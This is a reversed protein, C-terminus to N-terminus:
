VPGGTRVDASLSRKEPAKTSPKPVKPLRLRLQLWLKAKTTAKAKSNPWCLRFGKTFYSRACKGLSFHATYTLQNLKHSSSKSFKLKLKMPKILAKACTGMAKSKNAQRKKLGKKNYKKAFHPNRLFKPDDRKLSKYRSAVETINKLSTTCSTTRPSSM